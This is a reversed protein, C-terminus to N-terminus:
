QDLNKINILSLKPNCLVKPTPIYSSGRSPKQTYTTIFLGVVQKLSWGSGMQYDIRAQMRKSLDGKKSRIFKDVADESYISEPMTHAHITQETEEDERPKVILCEVGVVIKLNNKEKFKETAIRILRALGDKWAAEFTTHVKKFRLEFTPM